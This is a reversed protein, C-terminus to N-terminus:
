GGYLTSLTIIKQPRDNLSVLKMGSSAGATNEEEALEDAGETSIQEAANTAAVIALEKVRDFTLGDVNEPIVECQGPDDCFLADAIEPGYNGEYAKRLEVISQPNMAFTVLSVERLLLSKVFRFNRDLKTRPDKMRKMETKVPQWGISLAKLRGKQVQMRAFHIVKALPHDPIMMDKDFPSDVEGQVMLGGARNGLISKKGTAVVEVGTIEGVQSAMDHMHLLQRGYKLFETLTAKTFASPEVIDGGLDPHGTNAFGQFKVPKMFDNDPEDESAKFQIPAFLQGGDYNREVVQDTMERREKRSM